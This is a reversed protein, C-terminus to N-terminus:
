LCIPVQTRYVKRILHYVLAAQKEFPEQDIKYGFDGIMALDRMSRPVTM